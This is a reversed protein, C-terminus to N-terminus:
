LEQNIKIGVSFKFSDNFKSDTVTILKYLTPYKSFLGKPILTLWFKGGVM